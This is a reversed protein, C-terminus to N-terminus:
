DGSEVEQSNPVRELTIYNSEKQCLGQIVLMPLLNKEISKLM